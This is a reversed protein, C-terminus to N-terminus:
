QTETHKQPTQVSFSALFPTWGTLTLKVLATRGNKTNRHAPATAAEPHNTAFRGLLSIDLTRAVGARTRCM